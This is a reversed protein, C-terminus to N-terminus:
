SRRTFPIATTAVLLLLLPLLNRLTIKAQESGTSAASNLLEVATPTGLQFCPGFESTNNDSDTATATIQRGDNPATGLVVDFSVTGGSESVTFSDVHTQGEGVGNSDCAASEYIDITYMGAAADFNGVVRGSTEVLTLTPYNQLGNPGTDIDGVDNDTVQDGFEGDAVLDIGLRENSHFSNVRILNRMPTSSVTQLKLGSQGNHAITNQAFVNDISNRQLWIGGMANGLPTSGDAGVGIFNHQVTSTMLNRMLIGQRGNDAIVNGHAATAGGITLNTCGQFSDIGLRTNGLPSTGSADTGIYNGSIVVGDCQDIRIGTENGSIVNRDEPTPGGITLTDHGFTRVGDNNPRIELGSADVGLHMCTVTVDEAAVAIGSDFGGIALGRIHSGDGFVTLGDDTSSLGATGIEVLLNGPADATPCSANGNNTVGDIVVPVTANLAGNAATVSIVGSVSFEIRPLEGGPVVALTKLQSLAARLTCAGSDTACLLDTPDADDDDALSNVTFTATPASADSQTVTWAFLVGLLLSPILVFIRKTM